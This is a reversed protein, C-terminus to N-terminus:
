LFPFTWFLLFLGKRAQTEEIYLVSIISDVSYYIRISGPIRQVPDFSLIVAAGSLRFVSHIGASQRYLCSFLFLRQFLRLFHSTKRNHAHMKVTITVRLAKYNAWSVFIPYLNRMQAKRSIRIDIGIVSVQATFTGFFHIRRPHFFSNRAALM